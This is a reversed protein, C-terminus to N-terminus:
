GQERAHVRRLHEALQTSFRDIHYKGQVLALARQGMARSEDPHSLLYTLCRTWGEADGPEVWLGIGEGEIDIDIHANRTMVVPKGMAMADLLSTLGILKDPLHVMPIAIVAAGQYHSLLAKLTSLGSQAHVAINDSLRETPYVDQTCFIRLPIATDRVARILVEYDRFTRGAAVVGNPQDALSGGDFPAVNAYFSADGGWEIVEVRHTPVDFRSMLENAVRRHLCVFSSISGFLANFMSRSRFVPHVMHHMTVVVPTRLIRLFRLLGLLLADHQCGCFIVDYQSAVRLVRIQQDLDGLLKLRASLNKLWRFGEYPLVDVKLGLRQMGPVGWLQHEPSVGDQWERWLVETPLNNFYLVKVATVNSLISM